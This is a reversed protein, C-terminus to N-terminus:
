FGASCLKATLGRWIVPKVDKGPVAPSSKPAPATVGPWFSILKCRCWCCLHLARVPGAPPPECTVFPTMARIVAASGCSYHYLQEPITFLMLGPHLLWSGLWLPRCPPVWPKPAKCSCSGTCLGVPAVMERHGHLCPCSGSDLLCFFRLGVLAVTM